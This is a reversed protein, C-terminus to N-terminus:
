QRGYAINKGGLGRNRQEEPIINKRGLKRNREKTAVIEKRVTPETEKGQQHHKQKEAIEKRGM